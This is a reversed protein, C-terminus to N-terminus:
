NQKMWLARREGGWDQWESGSPTRRSRKWWRGGEDVLVAYAVTSWGSRVYSRAARLDSQVARWYLLPLKTPLFDMGSLAPSPEYKFEAAVEVTEGKGLIVLDARQFEHVVRCPSDRREIENMIKKQLTWVIDRERFFPGCDVYHRKLWNIANEFLEEAEM